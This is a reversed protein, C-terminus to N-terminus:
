GNIKRCKSETYVPLYLYMKTTANREATNLHIHLCHKTMYHSTHETVPSPTTM